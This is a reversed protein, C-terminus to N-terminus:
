IFCFVYMSSGPLLMLGRFPHELYENYADDDLIDRSMCSHWLSYLTTRSKVSTFGKPDIVLVLLRGTLVKLYTSFGGPSCIISSHHGKQYIRLWFQYKAESRKVLKLSYASWAM